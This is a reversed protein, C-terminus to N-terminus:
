SGPQRALFREMLALRTAYFRKWAGSVPVGGDALDRMKAVVMEGRATRYDAIPIPTTEEITCGRRDCRVLAQLMYAEGTAATGDDKAAPDLAWTMGSIVNGMSYMVM